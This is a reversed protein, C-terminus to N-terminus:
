SLNTLESDDSRNYMKAGKRALESAKENGDIGSHGRVHVFKVKTKQRLNDIKVIVDKNVVEAGMRTKWGKRKWGHIWKDMTQVVLNSDTKIVVKPLKKEIAKELAKEVAILEGRNNTAAGYVPGYENDDDDDGWYVGWGARADNKGTSSCAGDTYVVPADVFEVDM